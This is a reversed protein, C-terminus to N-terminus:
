VVVSKMCVVLQKQETGSDQATLGDSLNHANPVSACTGGGYKSRRSVPCVRWITQAGKGEGEVGYSKLEESRANHIWLAGAAGKRGTKGEDDQM